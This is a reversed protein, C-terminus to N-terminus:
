GCCSGACCGCTSLSISSILCTGSIAAMGGAPPPPILGGGGGGGKAQTHAMGMIDEKKIIGDMSCSSGFEVAFCNGQHVHFEITMSVIQCYEQGVHSVSDM